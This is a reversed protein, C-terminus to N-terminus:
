REEATESGLISALLSAKLVAKSDQARGVADVISAM